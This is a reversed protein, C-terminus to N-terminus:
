EADYNLAVTGEKVREVLDAVPIFRELGSRMTLWVFGERVDEGILFAGNSDKCVARATGVEVSGDECLLTVPQCGSCARLVDALALTNAATMKVANGKTSQSNSCHIVHSGLYGPGAGM